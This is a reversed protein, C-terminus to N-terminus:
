AYVVEGFLGCQVFIDATRADWQGDNAVLNAWQHPAVRPMVECARDVSQRDFTVLQDEETDLLIWSGGHLPYDHEFNCDADPPPNATDIRAWYTIGGDWASCLVDSLLENGLASM